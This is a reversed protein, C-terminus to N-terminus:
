GGAVGPIERTGTHRLPFKLSRRPGDATLTVRQYNLLESNFIAM